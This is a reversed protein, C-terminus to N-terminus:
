DMRGNGFQDLYERKLEGWIWEEEAASKNGNNQTDM